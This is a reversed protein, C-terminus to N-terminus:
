RRRPLRDARQACAICLRAEPLAQRREPPIKDGCGSCIPTGAPRPRALHRAIAADREGAERAAAEDLADSM